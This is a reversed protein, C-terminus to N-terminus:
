AGYFEYNIDQEPCYDSMPTESMYGEFEKVGEICDPCLGAMWDEFSVKGSITLDVRGEQNKKAVEFKCSREKCTDPM